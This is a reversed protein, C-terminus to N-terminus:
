EVEGKLAEELLHRVWASRSRFRRPVRKYEDRREELFKDLREILDDPLRVALVRDGIRPRGGLKGANPDGFEM